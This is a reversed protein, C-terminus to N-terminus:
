ASPRQLHPEMDSLTLDHPLHAKTAIAEVRALLVSDQRMRELADLALVASLGLAQATSNLSKAGGTRDIVSRDDHALDVHAQILGFSPHIAQSLDRYVDYFLSTDSFRACIKTMSWSRLEGTVPATAVIGALEEPHGIAASVDKVRTLWQYQVARILQEEGNHTLLVWQASLAHEFAVRSSSAAVFPRRQRIELATAVHNMAHALLPFCVRFKRLREVPVDIPLPLEDWIAVCADAASLYGADIEDFPDIPPDSM